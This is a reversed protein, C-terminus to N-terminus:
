GGDPPTPQHRAPWAEVRHGANGTALPQLPVRDIRLSVGMKEATAVLSSALEHIYKASAEPSDMAAMMEHPRVLINAVIV